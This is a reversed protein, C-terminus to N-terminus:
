DIRGALWELATLVTQHRIQDRDGKFRYERAEAPQGPLQLGLWVTGVEHGDQKDPGAVGTTAIGVAAGTRRIAGGALSRATSESVPGDQALQGAPVGALTAKLETAYVVLGGRVVGSAGPISTLAACLLGGTLSEVTGITLRMRAYGEIVRRAADYTPDASM